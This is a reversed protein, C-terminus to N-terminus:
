HETRHRIYSARYLLKGFSRHKGKNKISEGLVNIFDAYFLFQHTGNSM